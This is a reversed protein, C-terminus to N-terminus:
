CGSIVGKADAGAVTICNEAVTLRYTREGKLTDDLELRIVPVDAAPQDTVLVSLGMSEALYDQLDKAANVIRADNDSYAIQWAATVEVEGAAAKVAMDRRNALHVVNIRERFEYSREIKTM